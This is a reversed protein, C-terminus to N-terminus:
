LFLTKMSGCIPTGARMAKGLPKRTEKGVLYHKYIPLIVKTLPGLHCARELLDLLQKRALIALALMGNLLAMTLM